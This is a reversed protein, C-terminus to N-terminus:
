GALAAFLDRIEDEVEAPDALTRAVEERLFDRYRRRLRMAAVKVAGEALGLTRGIEACSHIEGGGALTPRLQAFLRAKGADAMEAGLRDLARELVTLAWRREFLREATLGHAPESVYRGEVGLRDIPVTARGGGRKQARDHERLNALHHSCAAMLFSRFRGRSPDLWALDDGEILRALTGQVVDEAADPELGRRRAFAYLPYWYDRCLSEWAARAGPDAPDRASLVVSWHTTPFGGMSTSDAM